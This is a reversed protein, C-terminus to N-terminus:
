RRRGIVFQLIGFTAYLVAVFFAIAVSWDNWQYYGLGWAATLTPFVGAATLGFLKLTAAAAERRIKADREDFLPDEYNRFVVFVAVIALVYAAVGFLPRGYGALVGLAVGSLVWLGGVARRATTEDSILSSM